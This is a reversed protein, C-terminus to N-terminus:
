RYEAALAADNSIETNVARALRDFAPDTFEEVTARM